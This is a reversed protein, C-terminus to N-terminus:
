RPGPQPRRALCGGCSQSSRVGASIQHSCDISRRQASADSGPYRRGCLSKGLRVRVPESLGGTLVFRLLGDAVTAFPLGTSHVVALRTPGQLRARKRGPKLGQLFAEFNLGVYRWLRARMVRSRAGALSCNGGCPSRSELDSGKRQELPWHIICGGIRQGRPCRSRGSRVSIRAM